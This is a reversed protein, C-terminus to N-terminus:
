HYDHRNNSSSSLIENQHSLSAESNGTPNYEHKQALLGCSKEVQWHFPDTASKFQGRLSQRCFESCVIEPKQVHM